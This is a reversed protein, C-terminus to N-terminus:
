QIVGYAYHISIKGRERRGKLEQGEKLSCVRENNGCTESIWICENESEENPGSLTVIDKESTTQMALVRWYVNKGGDMVFVFQVEEFISNEDMWM